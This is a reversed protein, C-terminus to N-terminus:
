SRHVRTTEHKKKETEAETKGSLTPSQMLSTMDESCEAEETVSDDECM